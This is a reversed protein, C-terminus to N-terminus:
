KRRFVGTLKDALKDAAGVRLRKDSYSLSSQRDFNSSTMSQGDSRNKKNINGAGGIGYHHTERMSGERVRVREFEEDPTVSAAEHARRFNGAGGIGTQFSSRQRPLPQQPAKLIKAVEPHAQQYNGAGGIGSRLYTTSRHRDYLSDSSFTSEQISSNRM